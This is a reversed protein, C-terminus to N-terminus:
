IPLTSFPLYASRIATEPSGSVSMLSICRTRKTIFPPNTTFFSGGRTLVVLYRTCIRASLGREVCVAQDIGKVRQTQGPGSRIPGRREAAMHRRGAARDTGGVTSYQRRYVDQRYQGRIWGTGDHLVAETGSTLARQRASGRDLHAHYGRRDEPQLDDPCRLDRVGFRAM